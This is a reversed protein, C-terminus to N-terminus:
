TVFTRYLRCSFGNRRDFHRSRMARSRPWRPLSRRSNLPWSRLLSMNITGAGLCFRRLGWRPPMALDPSFWAAGFSSSRIMPPVTAKFMDSRRLQAHAPKRQIQGRPYFLLLKFFLATSKCGSVVIRCFLKVGGVAGNGRELLTLPIRLLAGM